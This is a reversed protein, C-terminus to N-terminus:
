RAHDNWVWEGTECPGECLLRSALITLDGVRSLTWVTGTMKHDLRAFQEATKWPGHERELEVAVEEYTTRSLKSAYWTPAFWGPPNLQPAAPFEVTFRGWSPGYLRQSWGSASVGVGIAIVVLVSCALYTFGKVIV